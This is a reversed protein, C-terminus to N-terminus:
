QEIATFLCWSWPLKYFISNLPPKSVTESSQDMGRVAPLTAAPLYSHYQLFLLCSLDQRFSPASLPHSHRIHAKSIKFGVGWYWEKELPAMSGLGEGWVTRAASFWASQDILRHLGNENFGYCQALVRGVSSHGWGKPKSKHKIHMAEFVKLM